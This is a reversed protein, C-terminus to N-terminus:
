NQDNSLCMKWNGRAVPRRLVIMEQPRRWRRYGAGACCVVPAEVVVAVPGSGALHENCHGLHENCHKMCSKRQEIGVLIPLPERSFAQISVALHEISMVSSEITM